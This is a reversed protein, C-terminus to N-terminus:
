LYSGPPQEIVRLYLDGCVGGEPGKAAQEAFRIRQGAVVGAPFEAQVTRRGPVRGEGACYGCRQSTGPVRGSDRCATCGVLTNLTISKIVGSGREASSLEIDIYADEGRNGRRLRYGGFGATGAGILLAIVGGVTYMSERNAMQKRKVEDYTLGVGNKAASADGSCKRTGPKMVSNGCMVKDIDTVKYAIAAVGAAMVIVGITVLLIAKLKRM